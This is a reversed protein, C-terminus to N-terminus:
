PMNNWDDVKRLGFLMASRRRRRRRRLQTVRPDKDDWLSPCDGQAVSTPAQYVSKSSDSMGGDGVSWWLRLGVMDCLGVKPPYIKQLRLFVNPQYHQFCISYIYIIYTIHNHTIIYVQMTRISEIFVNQSRPRFPLGSAKHVLLPCTGYIWLIFPAVGKRIQGTFQGMNVRKSSLCFVGKEGIRRYDRSGQYRLSNWRFFSSEM